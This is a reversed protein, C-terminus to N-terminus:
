SSLVILCLYLKGSLILQPPIKSNTAQELINFLAEKAFDTTPRLDLGQPTKIVTVKLVGSIIRM